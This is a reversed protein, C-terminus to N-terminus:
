AIALRSDAMMGQLASRRQRSVKYAAVSLMAQQACARGTGNHPATLIMRDNSIHQTLMWEEQCSKQAQLHAKM